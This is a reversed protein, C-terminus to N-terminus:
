KLEKIIKVFVESYWVNPAHGSTSERGEVFVLYGDHKRQIVEAVDGKKYGSCDMLLEVKM